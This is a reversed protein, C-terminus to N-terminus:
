QVRVGKRRLYERFLTNLRHALPGAGEVGDKSVKVSRAVEVINIDDYVRVQYAPINGHRVIFEAFEKADFIAGQEILIESLVDGKVIVIPWNNNENDVAGELALSLTNPDFGSLKGKYWKGSTLRVLVTKDLLTNMKAMFKRAAESVYAM